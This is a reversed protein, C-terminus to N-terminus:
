SDGKPPRHLRYVEVWRSILLVALACALFGVVAAGRSGTGTSTRYVLVVGLMLVASILLPQGTLEGFHRGTLIDLACLAGGALLFSAWVITSIQSTAAAVSPPPIFISGLGAAMFFVDALLSLWRLRLRRRLSPM